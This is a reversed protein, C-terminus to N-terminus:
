PTNVAAPIAPQLRRRPPANESSTPRPEAAGPLLVGKSRLLREVADGTVPPSILYGQGSHCGLKRLRRLQDVSEIGEAVISLDLAMAFATAAAVIATDERRKGLGAVFSRDIKIGDVDFRKVYDLGSYGVGFDDIVVGVGLAKLARILMTTTETDLVAVSETIEFKLRAPDLGTEELASSTVEVIGPTRFQRPSLNVAVTLQAAAPHRKIWDALQRCATRLVLHDLGTILGTTEAFPVFADPPLWGRQPHNWRVLAEVQQLAGSDLDVVPQYRLELEGKDIAQRLERELELRRWAEESMAADFLQAQATGNQKARYMAIDAQGVLEEASVKGDASLGIGVSVSTVLERGEIQMPAALLESMRAAMHLADAPDNLGELLITFEDGGLRAPTDTARASEVLRNAVRTLMVDGAGHGLTDNVVKFNDLDLFLVAIMGNPKRHLHAIARELREMFLARNPLGTLSDYFAHRSLRAELGKRETIDLIVGRMHTPPTSGDAVVVAEDRVWVIRGARTLMRYESVVPEGIPKSLLAEEQILAQQRDEVHIQNYWLTPDTLWDDPAFGLLQEIQPSVYRWAGNAGFEAEYVVTPLSEVLTRYRENAAELRRESERRESIDRLYATFAQRGRLIVSSIALEVPFTSGDSRMAEIEIRRNLVREEGTARFRSLGRRHRSRLAPPIILSDIPRGIAEERTYGFTREAAPNFELVHGQDDITIICDLAAELIASHRAALERARASM